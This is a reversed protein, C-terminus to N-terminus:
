RAERAESEEDIFDLYFFPIENKHDITPYHKRSNKVHYRTCM